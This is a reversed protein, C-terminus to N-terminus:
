VAAWQSVTPAHMNVMEKLAAVTDIFEAPGALYGIRWGTMAYAKSVGNLTITRERMGPLSAISIQQAGDYLFKEYIEDSIVILDHKIAIEALRRTNEPSIIGA